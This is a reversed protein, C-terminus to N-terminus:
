NNCYIDGTKGVLNFNNMLKKAKNKSIDKFYVRYATKKAYIIAIDKFDISKQVINQVTIAMCTFPGYSFNKNFYYWYHCFM